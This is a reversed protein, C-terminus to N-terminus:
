RRRRTPTPQTALGVGLFIAITAAVIIMALLHNGAAVAMVAAYIMGGLGFLRLLVSVFYM